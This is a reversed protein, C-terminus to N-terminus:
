GPFFDKDVVRIEKSPPASIHRGPTSIAPRDIEDLYIAAHLARDAVDQEGGEALTEASLASRIALSLESMADVLPHAVEEGQEVRTQARVLLENAARTAEIADVIHDAIAKPDTM